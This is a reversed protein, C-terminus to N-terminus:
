GSGCRWAASLFEASLRFGPLTSMRIPVCRRSEFSTLNASRPRSITSSSCRKPTRWLSRRFCIRLFTSTSVMVAVGMGRVSCMDSTPSRSMLTISVGGLSRRAIWVTTALQSSFSIWDAM